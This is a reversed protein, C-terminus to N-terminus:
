FSLAIKFGIPAVWPNVNYREIGQKFGGNAEPQFAREPDIGFESDKAWLMINRSYISFSMTSLGTREIMKKPINYSLAIERLKIYDADFMNPTGFEWPFSVVYPLFITGEGGLNEQELIFNGNEDYSGVVGPAFTGDNVTIGSFSEPFGGEDATPGGIPRFTEALLFEEANEVVWDRLEPGPERGEPNILNGKWTETLVSESMYRHTQSMYQGGSRWDFTMDLSLNKYSLKTQLGMIFDPNYNGVKSLEEEALWEADIGSGILPYGFYPSNEDTVRQIKPSYINGVLGDEGTSLNKVFGIAKSKNDSWFEISNVRDALELIVTENKTFNLDLDWTWDKNRIPTFGLSLEVGKSELLGANIFVSSNGTSAALPVQFIQNENELTYYTGEFRVRNNFASIDVGFELSTALENVLNPNLLDPPTNVLVANGFQGAPVNVVQVRYPDTDKGVQAWGARFKLLDLKEADLLESALFSLSASPYFYDNNGSPLTSSWDNRATLDLYLMDKYGLNLTGFVSNISKESRQRSRTLSSANINEISFFNPVVLGSRPAAGVALNNFNQYMNNGGVSFAFDLDNWDKAYTALVDINRELGESMALGYTGNNPERSYGPPVKTERSEDFKNLNYRGRISIEPTIQWDATVNGYLRYRGFSNKVEYALFYPNELVNAVRVVESGERGPVWYDRLERIDINAPHAYAWELPNAGRNGVPRNDSWSHNFNINTSITLKDNLRSSASLSYNNRNLDSGPVIGSHTMNTFGVRLDMFETSNSVSLSNTSTLGTKVFNEVNNPYSKLETPIPVGNADLPSNWQVAFYGRDLEPGAGTAEAPNIPPMINSGISEPSFSFFGPAFQSQVALFRYPIDAVTNNTYSVRMKQGRKASKTTILVVGNGARSGYLAGASPGKLISVSEISEPDLDSIANGYDVRVRDGFGGVNNVTNSLPVGDVIFLPQNDSSLSTAGRIVMNVSSGTGGTSNVTVGSVKGSLSNLVNENVVRTLEEAAVKEVAYGLSKEERRIGLATIIVEDLAEASANLAVNITTNGNIPIEQTEFGLYSFELTGNSPANISYNGDFDTSVGISTGKLVISVGPLPVNDEAATVNGTITTQSIAVTSFLLLVLLLGILQKPQTTQNTSNM